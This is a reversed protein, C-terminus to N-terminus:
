DSNASFESSSSEPSSSPQFHQATRSGIYYGVLLAALIVLAWVAWNFLRPPSGEAGWSHLWQRYSAQKHLQSLWRRGQALRDFHRVATVVRGVQQRAIENDPDVELVELYAWVAEALHGARTLSEARVLGDDLSEVYNVLLTLDTKCSACQKQLGRLSKKCM